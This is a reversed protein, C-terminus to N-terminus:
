SGYPFQLQASRRWRRFCPLSAPATTLPIRVGSWPTFCVSPVVVRFLAATRLVAVLAGTPSQNARPDWHSPIDLTTATKHLGYSSDFSCPRGCAAFFSGLPSKKLAGPQPEWCGRTGQAASADQQGSGWCSRGADAVPRPRRQQPDWRSPIDLTTATKHLGYSSLFDSQASLTVGFFVFPSGGLPRSAKKRMTEQASRIRTPPPQYDWLLLSWGLFSSIGAQEAHLDRLRKKLNRWDSTAARRGCASLLLHRKGGRGRGTFFCSLFIRLNKQAAFLFLNEASCAWLLVSPM